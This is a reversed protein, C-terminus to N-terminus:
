KMHSAIPRSPIEDKIHTDKEEPCEIQEQQKAKQMM